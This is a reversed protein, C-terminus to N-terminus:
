PADEVFVDKTTESDKVMGDKCHFLATKVQAKTEIKIHQLLLKTEEVKRKADESNKVIQHKILRIVSTVFQVCIIKSELELGFECNPLTESNLM